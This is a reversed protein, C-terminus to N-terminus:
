FSWEFKNKACNNIKLQLQATLNKTSNGAVTKDDYVGLGHKLSEGDIDTVMWHLFMDGEDCTPNDNDVMILTYKGYDKANDFFVFPQDRFTEKHVELGCNEGAVVFGTTPNVLTLDDYSCCNFDPFIITDCAICIEMFCVAFVFLKLSGMM